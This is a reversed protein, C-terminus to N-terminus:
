AFRVRMGPFIYHILRGGATINAYTRGPFEREEALACVADFELKWM